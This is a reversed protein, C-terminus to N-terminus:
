LGAERALAELADPDLPEGVDLLAVTDATMAELLELTRANDEATASELLAVAELDQATLVALAAAFGHM